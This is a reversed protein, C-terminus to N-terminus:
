GDREERMTQPQECSTQHEEETLDVQERYFLPFTKQVFLYANNLHTQNDVPLPDEKAFKVLDAMQLLGTLMEELLGDDASVRRFATLIEDTTREMAPIGYQREIYSRTIETLRTYYEKIEGREWFKEEKLRDLERFAIVHAPEQPKLSFIEPDRTRQRQMWVLAYVLTALLWAGLGLSLWPLVERFTLPTNIPPKIPKIAQTTDVEPEYVHMMLPMSLATDTVSGTTYVVRQSPIVQLGPEFGTIMYRQSVMKRGDALMTDASIPFLVELNRSLTDRIEPLVFDVQDAADVKLTYVVQDGIMMSDGSVESQIRILQGKGPVALVLIWLILVSRWTGKM